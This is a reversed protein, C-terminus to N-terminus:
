TSDNGPHCIFANEDYEGPVEDDTKNEKTDTYSSVNTQVGIESSKSMENIRKGGEAVESSTPESTNQMTSQKDADHSSVESIETCPM